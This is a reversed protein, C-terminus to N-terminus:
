SKGENEVNKIFENIGDNMCIYPHEGAELIIKVALLLLLSCSEKVNNGLEINKIAEEMSGEIEIGLKKAKKEIKYARMLAPLYASVHRLEDAKTKLGYEQKKIEDWTGKVQEKTEIQQEGYVHPHRRILKKSIMTTVDDYSIDGHECEFVNHLCIQLLVDGMEEITAE